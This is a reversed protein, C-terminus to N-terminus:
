RVFARGVCENVGDQGLPAMFATGLGLEGVAAGTKGLKRERM